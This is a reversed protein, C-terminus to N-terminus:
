KGLEHKRFYRFTEMGVRTNTMSPNGLATAVEKAEVKPVTYCISTTQRTPSVSFVPLKLESNKRIEYVAVKASANEKAKAAELDAKRRSTYAIFKATVQKMKAIARRYVDSQIDLDRKTTTWPLKSANKSSFSVLGMFGNYQPHWGSFDDNNWVTRNTKDAALVVRDNCLVFWGYFETKSVEAEATVDDPPIGALGASIQVTVGDDIYAERFPAIDDSERLTYPLPSVPKGNVKISLQKQLFFSYDRAIIRRLESVFAPDKFQATIEPRLTPIQLSTGLPTWPKVVDMAFSWEANKEWADVDISMKFADKKTASEIKIIKGLKFIARKMGIGYLGIMYDKELPVDAPRGFHFAVKKALEVGIGGCNDSIEFKGNLLLAIEFGAFRTNDKPPSSMEHIQRTAGDLSNDILDLICDELRIDRTIMRIFFQKTPSADAFDKMRFYLCNTAKSALPIHRPQLQHFHKMFPLTKEGDGVLNRLMKLEIPKIQTSNM